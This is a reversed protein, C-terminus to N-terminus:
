GHSNITKKLSLLEEQLLIGIDEKELLIKRFLPVCYTYTKKDKTLIFALQLRALSQQIHEPEFQLQWKKFANVIHTLTFDGRKVTMYVIIRDLRSATQSDSLQQWGALAEYIASSQFAKEVHSQTLKFENDKRIKLMEHCIIAILNARQGTQERIINVLKPSEYEIGLIRMPKTILEDCAETELQGINISEGFNKIPSQFNFHVAEYLKWFGVLIFHCKGNESLGRCYSLLPYNAKMEREVFLDAEDVLFLRHQNPQINTLEDLLAETSTNNPLKLVKKLEVEIDNSFLSLYFCEVNHNQSNQFYREIKKLLSTKGLQRGGVILYNTLDRGLINSLLKERGFFASDKEVGGTTKYPSIDALKIQKTVVHTFPVIPRPALLLSTLERKDPVVWLNGTDKSYERLNERQEPQFSIILTCIKPFRGELDAIVERTASELPAFYLNIEHLNVPIDGYFSLKYFNEEPKPENVKTTPRTLSLRKSLYECREKNSMLTIFQIANELTTLSIGVESLISQLRHTRKLLKTVYVLQDISITLLLFSNKSVKVVIPHRYLQLYYLGMGITVLVFGLILYIIIDM